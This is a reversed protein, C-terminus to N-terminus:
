RKIGRLSLITTPVPSTFLRRRGWVLSELHRRFNWTSLAFTLIIWFLGSCAREFLIRVALIAQKERNDGKKEFARRAMSVGADTFKQARLQLNIFNKVDPMTSFYRRLTHFGEPTFKTVVTGMFAQNGKAADPTSALCSKQYEM